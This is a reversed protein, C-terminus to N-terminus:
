FLGSFFEFCVIVNEDDHIKKNTIATIVKDQKMIDCVVSIRNKVCVSENGCACIISTLTHIGLAPTGLLYIIWNM